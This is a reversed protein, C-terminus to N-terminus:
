VGKGDSVAKDIIRWDEDDLHDMLEQATRRNREGAPLISEDEPNMEDEESAEPREYDLTTQLSYQDGGFRSRAVENPQLVGNQVYINDTQAQKLRLDVMEFETPAWLPKFEIQWNAIEQGNFPGRQQLMILKVLREMPPLLREEQRASIMDYYRRIDSAGTANLGAPSQGMLVTVPIGTSASLSLVLERMLSDLGAVPSGLRQYTEKTDLLISNMIHKSLDILDLRKKVLGEKDAGILAQLNDISLVGLVFEALLTEVGCYAEGLGRLREYLSQLDSDAWGNNQRINNDSMDSGDFRLVRSEHVTFPNGSLPSVLYTRSQGFRRDKPDEYTSNEQCRWRDFIHVHEIEQINAENVEDAYEGGDNVGLVALAGGHLSAWRLSRITKQKADLRKIENQVENDTDGSVTFWRRTMDEVVLNIIRKGLGDGRYLQNLETETLVDPADFYTHKRKDRNQVGLGTLLNSWGDTKGVRVSKPIGRGNPSSQTSDTRVASKKPAM